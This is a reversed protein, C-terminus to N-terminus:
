GCSYARLGRLRERDSILERYLTSHDLSFLSDPQVIAPGGGNAVGEVVDLCLVRAAGESHGRKCLKEFVADLRLPWAVVRPHNPPGAPRDFGVFRRLSRPLPWRCYIAHDFLAGLEDWAWPELAAREFWLDLHEERHEPWLEWVLAFAPWGSTLLVRVADLPERWEYILKVPRPPAEDRAAGALQDRFKRGKRRRAGLTSRVDEGTLHSYAGRFVEVVDGPKLGRDEFVSVLHELMLDKGRDPPRKSTTKPRAVIAFWALPDPMLEYEDRVIHQILLARAQDWAWAHTRAYKCWATLFRLEVDTSARQCASCVSELLSPRGDVAKHMQWSAYGPFADLPIAGSVIAEDRKDKTYPM